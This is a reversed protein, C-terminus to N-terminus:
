SIVIDSFGNSKIVKMHRDVQDKFEDRHSIIFVDDAYRSLTNFIRTMGSADSSGDLLEDIMLLNSGQGLTGTLDRFALSTSVNLRLREGQSMMFYSVKKNMYEIDVTMDPNISAVQLLGLNQSHESIKKNVFPIYQDVINKRIFSKPDTLLKILYNVHRLAEQQEAVNAALEDLDVKMEVQETVMVTYQNPTQELEVIRNKLKEIEARFLSLEDYTTVKMGVAMHKRTDVLGALEDSVVQHKQDIEKLNGRCTEIRAEVAAVNGHELELDCIDIEYPNDSHLKDVLALLAAKREKLDDVTRFKTVNPVEAAISAMADAVDNQKDAINIKVDFESIEAEISAIEADMAEVEATLEDVKAVDYHDQACFPCKGEALTEVHDLKSNFDSVMAKLRSEYLKKNSKATVSESVLTAGIDALDLYESLDSITPLKSIEDKAQAHEVEHRKAYEDRKRYTTELLEKTTQHSIIASNVRDTEVGFEVLKAELEAIQDNLRMLEEIDAEISEPLGSDNIAATISAIEDARDNDFESARKTLRHIQEDIKANTAEANQVDRELLKLEDQIERRIVDKLTKARDALVDLKLISEMFNRQSAPTMAMFPEIHPNMFITRVFVDFSLGLVKVIDADTNKMSDRTLNDGDVECFEVFAPKRGRRIQYTQGGVCFTLEVVLKKENSINVFEDANMKDIGTGYLAFIVAQMSATKGAGNASEGDDGVDRNEGSILFNLGGDLEVENFQKGFSMFNSM